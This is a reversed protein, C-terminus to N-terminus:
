SGGFMERWFKRNSVVEIGLVSPGISRVIGRVFNRYKDYFVVHDSVTISGHDTSSETLKDM